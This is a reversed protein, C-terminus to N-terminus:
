NFLSCRKKINFVIEDYGESQKWKIIFGDPFKWLFLGPIIREKTPLGLEKYLGNIGGYRKKLASLERFGDRGNNKVPLRNFRIIYNRVKERIQEPCLGVNNMQEFTQIKRGRGKLLHKKNIQRAKEIIEKNEINIRDMNKARKNSTIDSSLATGSNLGYKKKYEKTTLKHKKLHFDSISRLWQGCESCQILERNPTQIKVGKFGIGNDNPMLPAKALGIYCKDGVESKYHIIRDSYKNIFKSYENKKNALKKRLEVNYKRTYNERM